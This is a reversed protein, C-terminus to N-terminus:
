DASRSRLALSAGSPLMEAPGSVMHEHLMRRAEAQVARADYVRGEGIDRISAELAEVVRQPAPRNSQEDM